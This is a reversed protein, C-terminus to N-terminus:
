QLKLGAFFTQAVEPDVATGFLTAQYVRLGRAFFATTAEIPAGRASVGRLTVMVANPNPTMGPVRLPLAQIHTASFNAEAAARLSRLTEGVRHPQDVDLFGVGLTENGASCVHVHMPLSSGALNTIRKQHQPKCPFLATLASGAPRVERWDYTPTCGALAWVWAWVWAWGCGTRTRRRAASRAFCRM